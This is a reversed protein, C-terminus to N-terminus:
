PALMRQIEALLLDFAGTQPHILDFHGANRITKVTASPLKGAQDPPVILDQDGWLLVTPASTGLRSPSAQEYRALYDEALGGMLRSTVQQCSNDGEAYAALDTIAALGIVGRPAFPNRRCLEQGPKLRKRGAAWLALHGGASHGVFVTREIDIGGIDLAKLADVGDAVDLFTGPWGGGDQGVRRYEPAWVAYGHGALATALPRIHGVDYEDLWCGGHILVVLPASGITDDPLWVEAFQEAGPGYTRRLDPERWELELVDSFSQQWPAAANSSARMGSHMM